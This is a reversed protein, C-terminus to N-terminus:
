GGDDDSKISISDLYFTLIKFSVNFNNLLVAPKLDIGTFFESYDKVRGM